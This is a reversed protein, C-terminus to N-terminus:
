QCEKLRKYAAIMRPLDGSIAAERLEAEIAAAAFWGPAGIERYAALLERCRAQEHSLADGLTLNVVDVRRVESVCLFIIKM